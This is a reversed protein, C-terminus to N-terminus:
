DAFGVRRMARPVISKHTFISPSSWVGHALRMEGQYIAYHWAGAYRKGPVGVREGGLTVYVTVPGHVESQATASFEWDQIESV